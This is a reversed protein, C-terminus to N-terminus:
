CMWRIGALTLIAVGCAYWTVVCRTMYGGLRRWGKRGSDADGCHYSVITSRGRALEGPRSTSLEGHACPPRGRRIPHRCLAPVTDQNVPSPSRQRQRMRWVPLGWAEHASSDPVDPDCHHRVSPRRGHVYAALAGHYKQRSIARVIRRYLRHAPLTPRHTSTSLCASPLDPLHATDNCTFPHTQEWPHPRSAPGQETRKRCLVLILSAHGPRTQTAAAELKGVPKKRASSAPSPQPTSATLSAADSFATNM